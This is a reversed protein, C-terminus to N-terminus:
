EMAIGTRPLSLEFTAGPGVDNDISATGGHAAMIAEVVSLGLGSGGHARSRSEEGREFLTFARSVFEPPIGPGEDKVRLIGAHNHLWIDPFEFTDSASLQHRPMGRCWSGM